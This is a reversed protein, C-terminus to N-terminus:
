EKHIALKEGVTGMYMAIVILDKEGMNTGNHFTNISEAFSSNEGFKLIKHDETEVTLEGQLVYSFIPIEHKHWGTSAGPPFTIKQITVEPHSFKPYVISQGLSTTDTTLLKEVILSRKNQGNVTIISCAMLTIYLLCKRM